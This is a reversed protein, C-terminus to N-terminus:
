LPINVSANFVGLKVYLLMYPQHQLYGVPSGPLRPSAMSFTTPAAAAQDYPVTGM